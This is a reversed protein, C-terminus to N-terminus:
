IKIQTIHRDLSKFRSLCCLTAKLWLRLGTSTCVWTPNTSVPSCPSLTQTFVSLCVSLSLSLSSTFSLYLRCFLSVSLCHPPSLCYCFFLCSSLSFSLTLSLSDFLSAPSILLQWSKHIESWKTQGQVTHWSAPFLSAGQRSEFLCVGVAPGASLPASSLLFSFVCVCCDLWDHLLFLLLSPEM